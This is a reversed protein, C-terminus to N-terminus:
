TAPETSQKEQDGGDQADNKQTNQNSGRETNGSLDDSGAERRTQAGGEAVQEPRRNTLNTSM